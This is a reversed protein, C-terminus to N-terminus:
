LVKLFISNIFMKKSGVLIVFVNGNDCCDLVIGIKGNNKHSLDSDELVSGDYCLRVIDNKKIRRKM